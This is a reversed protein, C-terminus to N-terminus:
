KKEHYVHDESWQSFGFVEEELSEVEDFGGIFRGHVFLAPVREKGLLKKLEDRYTVNEVLVREFFVIKHSNLISRVYNCTIRRGVRRTYLVVSNEGGPPCKEEFTNLMSEFERAKDQGRDDDSDTLNNVWELEMGEDWNGGRQSSTGIFHGDQSLEISPSAESTAVEVSELFQDNYVDGYGGGIIGSFNPTFTEFINEFINSAFAEIDWCSFPATDEFPIGYLLIRLKGENELSKVGIDRGIFRGRIFLAPVKAIGLLEELEYRYVRNAGVEREFFEIRHSKLISRVNDCEPYTGRGVTQTYLVVSNEGGPPCIEMFTNLLTKLERAKDQEREDDSDTLNLVSEFENGEDWIFHGDRSDDDSYYGIEELSRKKHFSLPSAEWFRPSVESNAVDVGEDFQGEYVDGYGGGIIESFNSTFIEIESSTKSEKSPVQESINSIAQEDDSDKELEEKKEEEQVDPAAVLTPNSIALSEHIVPSAESHIELIVEQSPLMSIDLSAKNSDSVYYILDVYSFTKLNEFVNQEGSSVTEM